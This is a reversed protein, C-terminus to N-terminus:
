NYLVPHLALNQNVFSNNLKSPSKMMGEEKSRFSLNQKMTKGGNGWYRPKQMSQCPSFQQLAIKVNHKEMIRTLDTLDQESMNMDVQGTAPM